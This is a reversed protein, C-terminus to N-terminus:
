GKGGERWQKKSAGGAGPQPSPAASRLAAVEAGSIDGFRGLDRKFWFERHGIRGNNHKAQIFEIQVTNQNDDQECGRLDTKPTHLLLIRRGAQEIEGSDRLDHPQPRREGGDTRGSRNLQSLAFMTRNHKKANRALHKAIYGMEAERSHFKGVANLQHIHDIGTFDAEGHRRAHEDIRATLTEVPMSDETIWLQTGMYSKVEAYCSEFLARQDKTLQELHRDNLGAATCATKELFKGIGTELLFIQATKGARLNHLTVWRLFTSKAGGQFAGIPVFWDENNADFPGFREDFERLGTFLYRSTDPKGALKAMTRSEAAAVVDEMTTTGLRLQDIAESTWAQHRELKAAIEEAGGTLAYAGEVLEKGQRIIARAAAQDRVKEIWYSAQATTSIQKSVQAIFPYGGVQELQKRERLEEAVHASEMPSGRRYLHLLVAYIVGHKPDYFSAPRLKYKLCKSMVDRGDIMITALLYEEAELSHPLMQGPSGEGPSLVRLYPKRKPPANEEDSPHSNEM